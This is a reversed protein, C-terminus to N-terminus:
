GATSTPGPTPSPSTAPPATAPAATTSPATTPASNPSLPSTSPPTPASTASRPIGSEIVSSTTGEQAEREITRNIDVTLRGDSVIVPFQELGTGDAPYAVGSCTDVFGGVEPQWRVFCERSSGPSRAAFAVWGAEPTAGLHNVYLDRTGGSVDSYLFPGDEAIQDAMHDARGANFTDSGLRVEVDGGRALRLLVVLALVALLIGGLAVVVATIERRTSVRGVPM